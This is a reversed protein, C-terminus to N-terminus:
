NLKNVATWHESYKELGRKPESENRFQVKSIQLHETFVM